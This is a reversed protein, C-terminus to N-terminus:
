RSIFFGGVLAVLLIALASWAAAELSILVTRRRGLGHHSYEEYTILFGAVGALPAFLIGVIFFSWFAPQLDM